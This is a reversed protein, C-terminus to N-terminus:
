QFDYDSADSLLDIFLSEDVRRAKRVKAEVWYWSDSDVGSLLPKSRESKGNIRVSLAPDQKTHYLLAHTAMRGALDVRGQAGIIASGIPTLSALLRGDLTSIRLGSAEYRPLGEENLDVKTEALVLNRVECWARVQALFANLRELYVKVKEAHQEM